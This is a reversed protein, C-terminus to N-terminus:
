ILSALFRIAEGIPIGHEIQGAASLQITDRNFQTSNQSAMDKRIEDYILEAEALSLSVDVTNLLTMFEHPSCVDPFGEWTVVAGRQRSTKLRQRLIHLQGILQSRDGAIYKSKILKDRLATSMLVLASSASRDRNSELYNIADTYRLYVTSKNARDDTLAMKCIFSWLSADDMDINFPDRRLSEFLSVGSMMGSGSGHSRFVFALHAKNHLIREIARRSANNRSDQPSPDDSQHLSTLPTHHSRPSEILEPDRGLGGSTSRRLDGPSNRTSQYSALSTGLTQERQRSAKQAANQPPNNNREDDGHDRWEDVAGELFNSSSQTLDRARRGRDNENVYTEPRMTSWASAYHGQHRRNRDHRSSPPTDTQPATIPSGEYPVELWALLDAIHLPQPLSRVAEEWLSQIDNKSLHIDACAFAELLLGRPLM